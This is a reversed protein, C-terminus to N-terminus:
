VKSPILFVKCGRLQIKYNFSLGEQNGIISYDFRRTIFEKHLAALYFAKASTWGSNGVQQNFCDVLEIDTLSDFRETFEEFLKNKKM